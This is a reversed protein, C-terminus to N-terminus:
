YYTLFYHSFTALSNPLILGYGGIQSSFASFQGFVFAQYAFEVNSKIPPM